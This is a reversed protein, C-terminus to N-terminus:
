AKHIPAREVVFYRETVEFGERELAALIATATIKAIRTSCIIENMITEEIVELVTLSEGDRRHPVKWKINEM